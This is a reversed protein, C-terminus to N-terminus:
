RQISETHKKHIDGSVSAHSRRRSFVDRLFAQVLDWADAVAQAIAEDSYREVEVIAEPRGHRFFSHGVNPYIQMHFDKGADKLARHIRDMDFRSVYYDKQGFVLLLPVAVRHADSIPPEHGGPMPNAVNAPYFCIAGSLEALSSTIFAATAGFGFGWTAINGARVFSQANLWQVAARVDATLHEATVRAAAAFANRNGEETYPENLNPNTRHYYNIALAVYGTSALLDTIRRVEPTLGFVEQLVIVAPHPGSREDPRALYAPMQLDDVPITIDQSIM